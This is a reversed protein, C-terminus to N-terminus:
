AYTIIPRYTGPKITRSSVAANYANDKRSSPMSRTRLREQLLTRTSDFNDSSITSPSPQDQHNYSQGLTVFLTIGPAALPGSTLTNNLFLQQRSQQQSTQGQNSLWNDDGKEPRISV